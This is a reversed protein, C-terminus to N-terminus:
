DQEKPFDGKQLTSIEQNWWYNMKQQLTSWSKRRIGSPRILANENTAEETETYIYTYIDEDSERPLWLKRHLKVGVHGFPTTALHM